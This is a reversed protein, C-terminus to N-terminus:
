KKTHSIDKLAECLKGAISYIHATDDPNFIEEGSQFSANWFINGETNGNIEIRYNLLTDDEKM